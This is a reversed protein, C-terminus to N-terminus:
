FAYAYNIYVTTEDTIGGKESGADEDKELRNTRALGGIFTHAGMTKVLSIGMETIDVPYEEFTGGKAAYASNEDQDTMIRGAGNAWGFYGQVDLDKMVAYEGNITYATYGLLTKEVEETPGNSWYETYEITPYMRMTGGVELVNNLKQIYGLALEPNVEENVQIDYRAHDRDMGIGSIHMPNTHQYSGILKSTNSLDYIGGLAVSTYPATSYYTEGESAGGALARFNKDATQKQMQGSRNSAIEVGISLDKSLEMGYSLALVETGFYTLDTRSGGNPFLDKNASWKLSRAIFNDNQYSIGLWGNALKTNYNVFKNVTLEPDVNSGNFQPENDALITSNQSYKDLLSMGIEVSSVKNYARVAANGGLANNDNNVQDIPNLLSASAASVLLSLCVIISFFKKM